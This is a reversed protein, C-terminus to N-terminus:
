PRLITLTNDVTNHDTVITKIYDSLFTGDLAYRLKYAPSTLVDQTNLAETGAFYRMNLTAVVECLAHVEEPTLTPHNILQSAGMEYAVAGFSTAAYRDFDLLNADTVGTSKAWRPVDVSATQYHLTGQTPDFALTGYQHPYVALANTAIDYIPTTGTHDASIDQIHIHGSLAIPVDYAQLRTRLAEANDLTYGNKIVPNHTILSHHMVPIITADHAAALALCTDVWDLTADSLKGNTQPFGLKHNNKYINTDLMLLWLSESPTALYSLSTEDHSIAEDYGFAGYLDTFTAISIGETVYQKDGEFGRAWPNLLDHNGPVVYVSSGSAEIQTLKQAFAEHSAAEGNNTLDGSIIVIDPAHTTVQHVFADMLADSYGLQKGDGGAVYKQFAVGDDHLTPALYHTDTTIFLSLPQDKPFSPKPLPTPKSPTVCSTLMCAIFPLLLYKKM